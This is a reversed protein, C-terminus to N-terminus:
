GLAKCSRVKNRADFATGPKCALCWAGDARLCNSDSTDSAATAGETAPVCQLYAVDHASDSGVTACGMVNRLTIRLMIFYCHESSNLSAKAIPVRHVQMTSLSINASIM